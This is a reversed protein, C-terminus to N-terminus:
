YPKPPKPPKPPIPKPLRFSWMKRFQDLSHTLENRAINVQKELDELTQLTEPKEAKDIFKVIEQIEVPDIEHYDINIRTTLTDGTEDHWDKLRGNKTTNSGAEYEIDYSVDPTLKSNGVDYYTLQTFKNFLDQLYMNTQHVSAYFLESQKHIEKLDAEIRKIDEDDVIIFNNNGNPKVQENSKASIKPSDKQLHECDVGIQIKISEKTVTIIEITQGFECIKAQMTQIDRAIRIAKNLFDRLNKNQDKEPAISEKIVVASDPTTSAPPIASPQTTCGVIFTITLLAIRAIQKNIIM